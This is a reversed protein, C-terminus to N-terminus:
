IYATEIVSGDAANISKWFIFGYNLKAKQYQAKCEGLLAGAELLELESDDEYPIALSVMRDTGDSIFSCEEGDAEIVAGALFQKLAAVAESNAYADRLQINWTVFKTAM